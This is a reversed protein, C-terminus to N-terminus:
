AAHDHVERMTMAMERADSSEYARILQGLDDITRLTARGVIIGNEVQLAQPTQHVRFADSVRRASEGEISRIMAPLKKQLTETRREDEGVVLAILKTTNPVQDLQPALEHCAGCNESLFVLYRLDKDLDPAVDIADVPVRDGILLGDGASIHGAQIRLTLLGVHRIVIMMVMTLLCMWVATTVLAILPLGSM